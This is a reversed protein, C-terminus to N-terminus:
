KAANYANVILKAYSIAGNKDASNFNTWTAGTKVDGVTWVKDDGIKADLLGDIGHEKVWNVTADRNGKWGLKVTDSKPWYNNIDKNMANKSMITADDKGNKVVLLKNQDVAKYYEEAVKVDALIEGLTKNGSVYGKTADYTFTYTGFKVTKYYHKTSTKGWQTVEVDVTDESSETATVDAPLFVEQLTVDTIKNGTVTVTAYGVCSAGNTLAYAVGTKPTATEGCAALMSAAALTLVINKAKNM